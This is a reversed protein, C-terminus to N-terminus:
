IVWKFAKLFEKHGADELVRGHAVIIRDFHWRCVSLVSARLPDKNWSAIRELRSSSLRGHMGLFTGFMRTKLRSGRHFSFASDTLILSRSESHFFVFEQLYVIGKPTMTCLGKLETSELDPIHEAITSASLDQVMSLDAYLSNLSSPVLVLAEPYIESWQKIHGHHMVNPAIIAVVRGLLQIQSEITASSRIPSIIILGKESRIITMRLGIELGLYRNASELVFLNESISRLRSDSM